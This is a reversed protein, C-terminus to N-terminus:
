RLRGAVKAVTARSCRAANQIATWTAGVKLTAAIGALRASDERRGRYKGEASRSLRLWV